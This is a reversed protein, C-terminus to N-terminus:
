IGCVTIARARTKLRAIAGRQELGDLLRAIGSKSGFGLARRMEDFTPAIGHRARYGGIFLLLDRQRRTLGQPMGAGLQRAIERALAPRARILARAAEAVDGALSPLAAGEGMALAQGAQACDPMTLGRPRRSEHINRTTPQM